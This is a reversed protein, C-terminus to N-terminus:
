FRIVNYIHEFKEKITGHSFPLSLIYLPSYITKFLFKFLLYKRQSNTKKHYLFMSRFYMTWFRPHSSKGSKGVLHVIRPEHSVIRRYGAKMYRHQMETEECYMFFDPDFLGISSAIDREVMLDAGTIYDVDFYQQNYYKKDSVNHPEEKKLHLKSLVPYVTFSLLTTKITPFTSYSHIEEGERNELICGICAVELKEANAAKITKWLLYIANNVLYTDSNLLFVYDGTSHLFGLNNARGFGLNEESYIYTIRKDKDFCNKSGDTSGNDILIVEFELGITKQFVSDICEQTMKLTNYNVIIISVDMISTM